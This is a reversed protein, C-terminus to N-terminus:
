AIGVEQGGKVRGCSAAKIQGTVSPFLAASGFGKDPFLQTNGLIEILFSVRNRFNAPSELDGFGRQVAENLSPFTM